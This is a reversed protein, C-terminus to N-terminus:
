LRQAPSSLTWGLLDLLANKLNLALKERIMSAREERPNTLGVVGAPVKEWDIM